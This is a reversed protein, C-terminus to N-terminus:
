REENIQEIVPPYIQYDIRYQHENARVKSMFYRIKEIPNFLFVESNVIFDPVDITFEVKVKIRRTLKM